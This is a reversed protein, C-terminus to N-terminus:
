RLIIREVYKRNRNQVVLTYMGRPLYSVDFINEGEKLAKHFILMGDMSYIKGMANIESTVIFKGKSPNPIVSIREFEGEHQYSPITLSTYIISDCGNISTLTDIIDGSSSYSTGNIVIFDSAIVTDYTTSGTNVTLNTIAISDNTNAATLTDTITTSSYYTNGNIDVSDCATISTTTTITSRRIRIDFICDSHCSDVLVSCSDCSVLSNKKTDIQIYYTQNAFAKIAMIGNVDNTNVANFCAKTTDQCPNSCPSNNNRRLIFGQLTTTIGFFSVPNCSVNRFDVYVSDTYPLVFKYWISSEIGEIGCCMDTANTNEFGNTCVSTTNDGCNSVLHDTYCDTTAGDNDGPHWLGDTINIANICDNNVPQSYSLSFISTLLLLLYAWKKMM